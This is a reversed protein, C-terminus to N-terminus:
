LYGIRYHTGAIKRASYSVASDLGDYKDDLFRRKLLRIGLAGALIAAGAVIAQKGGM